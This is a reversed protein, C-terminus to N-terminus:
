RACLCPLRVEPILTEYGIQLECRPCRLRCQRELGGERKVYVAREEAKANLRYLRKPRKDVAVNALVYSGDVPRRPLLDLRKDLM